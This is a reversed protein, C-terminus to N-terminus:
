FPGGRWAPLPEGAVAVEFAARALLRTSDLSGPAPSLAPDGLLRIDKWPTASPLPGTGWSVGGDTSKWLGSNNSLGNAVYVTSPNSPNIAITRVVTGGFQTAGLNSWTGGSDSSKYLGVGFALTADTGTGVYVRSPATPDVSICSVAQSSWSDSLYQWTSGNDTSRALGGMSGTYVVDYQSGPALALAQIRTTANQNLPNNLIPPPIPSTWGTMLPSVPLRRTAALARAHAEPSVAGSTFMHKIWEDRRKVVEPDNEADPPALPSPIQSIASLRDGDHDAGRQASDDNPKAFVTYCILLLTGSCLLGLVVHRLITTKRFCSHPNM